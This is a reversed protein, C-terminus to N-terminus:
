EIRADEKFLNVAMPTKVGVVPKKVHYYGDGLVAMAQLSLIYFDM